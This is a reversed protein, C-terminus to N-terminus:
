CCCPLITFFNPERPTQQDDFFLHSLFQIISDEQNTPGLDLLCSSALSLSDARGTPVPRDFKKALM